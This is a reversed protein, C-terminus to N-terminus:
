LLARARGLLGATELPDTGLADTGFPERRLPDAGLPFARDPGIPVGRTTLTRSKFPMDPDHPAFLPAFVSLVITIAVIVAGVLAGRNKRFRRLAPSDTRAM